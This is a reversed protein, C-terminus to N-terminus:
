RLEAVLAALASKWEDGHPLLDFIDLMRGNTGKVQPLNDTTKPHDTLREYTEITGGVLQAISNIYKIGSETKGLKAASGVADGLWVSGYADIYGASAATNEHPYWRLVVARGFEATVGIERLSALFSHLRFSLSPVAFELRDYFLVELDILPKTQDLGTLSEQVEIKAALLETLQGKLGKATEIIFNLGRFASTSPNALGGGPDSAGLELGNQLISLIEANMSRNNLKALSAIQDRMGNPFRLIYKEQEQPKRTAVM